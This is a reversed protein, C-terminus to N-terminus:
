LDLGQVPERLTSLERLRRKGATAAERSGMKVVDHLIEIAREVHGNAAYWQAANYLLNPNAHQEM